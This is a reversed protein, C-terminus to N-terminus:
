LPSQPIGVGAPLDYQSVAVPMWRGDPRKAFSIGMTVNHQSGDDLTIRVPVTVEVLVGEYKSVEVDRSGNHAVADPSRATTQSRNGKGPKDKFRGDNSRLFVEPRAQEYDANVLLAKHRDWVRKVEATAGESWPGVPYDNRDLWARFDGIDGRKYLALLEVTRNSLEEVDERSFESAQSRAALELAVRRAFPEQSSPPTTDPLRGLPEPAAGQEQDGRGITSRLVLTATLLTGAAVALLAITKWSTQM